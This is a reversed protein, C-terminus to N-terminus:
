VSVGDVTEAILHESSDEREVVRVKIDVFVGHAQRNMETAVAGHSYMRLRTGDETEVDAEYSCMRGAGGYLEQRVSRTESVVKVRMTKTM